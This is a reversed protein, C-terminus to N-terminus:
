NGDKSREEILKEFYEIAKDAERETEKIDLYFSFGKDYEHHEYWGNECIYVRAIQVHSGYNFFVDIGKQKAKLALELLKLLKKEM